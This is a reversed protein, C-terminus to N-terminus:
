KAGGASRILVPKEKGPDPDDDELACGLEGLVDSPHEALFFFLRGLDHLRMYDLDEENGDQKAMLLSVVKIFMLQDYADNCNQRTVTKGVRAIDRLGPLENACNAM